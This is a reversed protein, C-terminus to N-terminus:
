WPFLVALLALALVTPVIEASIEVIRAFEPNEEKWADYDAKVEDYTKKMVESMETGKEIAAKVSELLWAAVGEWNYAASFQDKKLQQLKYQVEDRTCSTQLITFIHKASIKNDYTINIAHPPRSSTKESLSIAGKKRDSICCATTSFASGM